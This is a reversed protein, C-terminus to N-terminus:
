AGSPSALASSTAASDVPVSFFFTTGEGPASELWIRGGHAEVIGKAISLGLGTGRKNASRRAQWYRDFVRGQDAHPIGPGSDSVFFVVNGGRSEAGVIIRGGDPTFKLANNLFNGLVQVIRSADVLMPPVDASARTELQVRRQTAEVEFMRAAQSVLAPAFQRGRELSLRGAEISAVDLLDQILRNMWDASQVITTLLSEREDAGMQGNDERLVKACMAIASLPNRLDHSVVGLVQDRGETARKAERYLRANELALSAHSAFKEALARTDTGYPPRGNLALLTVAGLTREGATLPVVLMSRAGLQRWRSLAEPDDEHAELWADDIEPVLESRGRRIVDVVPSPSDWTLSSSEALARLTARTGENPAVGEATRRAFRAGDIVDVVCADALTPTACEAIAQLVEDYGLSASLRASTDALFRENEQARRRETIDRVVATFVRRGGPLDLKSISAEAPFESGDRRRGAVERRHGMRRASEEGRAFNDIFENHHARFREPLLTNLSQGLVEATPWGFIEEAGKNFHIIRYNEDVTVVADAAIALISAFMADSAHREQELRQRETLASRVARQRGLAFGVAALAAVLAALRLWSPVDGHRLLDRTTIAFPVLLVAIALGLAISVSRIQVLPM